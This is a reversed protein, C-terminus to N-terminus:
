QTLTRNVSFLPESRKQLVPLDFGVAKLPGVQDKAFPPRVGVQEGLNGGGDDVGVLQDLAEPM